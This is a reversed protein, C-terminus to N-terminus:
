RNPDLLEPEVGQGRGHTEPLPLFDWAHEARAEHLDAAMGPARSNWDAKQGSTSPAPNLRCCRAAGSRGSSEM